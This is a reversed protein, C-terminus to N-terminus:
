VLEEGAVVQAEIVTQAAPVGMRGMVEARVADRRKAAEAIVATMDVFAMNVDLTKHDGYVRPNRKAALWYLAQLQARAAKVDKVSMPLTVTKTEGTKEDVSVVEKVQEELQEVILLVRDFFADASATWAADWEVNAEPVNARYARLIHTTTGHKVVLKQVQEGNALDELIDPWKSAVAAKTEEAIRLNTM